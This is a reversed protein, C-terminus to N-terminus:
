QGKALRQSPPLIVMLGAEGALTHVAACDTGIWIQERHENVLVVGWAGEHQSWGAWVIEFKMEDVGEMLAVNGSSLGTVGM